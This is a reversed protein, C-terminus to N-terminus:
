FHSLLHSIRQIQCLVTCQHTTVTLLVQSLQHSIPLHPQIRNPSQSPSFIMLVIRVWLVFKWNESSYTTPIWHVAHHGTLVVTSHVQFNHLTHLRLTRLVFVYHHNPTYATVKGLNTTLFCCALSYISISESRLDMSWHRGIGRRHKISKCSAFPFKAYLFYTM